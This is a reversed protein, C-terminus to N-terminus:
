TASKMSMQKLVDDRHSDAFDHSSNEGAYWRKMIVTCVEHSIHTIDIPFLPM